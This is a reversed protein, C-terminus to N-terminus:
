IVKDELHSNDVQLRRAREDAEIHSKCQMELESQLIAISSAQSVNENKLLALEESSQQHQSRILGIEATLDAILHDKSRM